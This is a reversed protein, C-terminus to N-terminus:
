SLLFELEDELAGIMDNTLNDGDDLLRQYTPIQYLLEEGLYLAYINALGQYNKERIYKDSYYEGFRDNETDFIYALADLVGVRELFERGEKDNDTFYDLNLLSNAMDDAYEGEPINGINDLAFQLIEKEIETFTPVEEERLYKRFNELERM